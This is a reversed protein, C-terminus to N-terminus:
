SLLVTEYNELMANRTFIKNLSNNAVGVHDNQGTLVEEMKNSISEANPHCLEVDAYAAIEPIGGVSTAIVKVGSALGELLVIGFTERRSPIVTLASHQMLAATEQRTTIGYFRVRNQIKLTVAQALLNDKETGSGAIVLIYTKRLVEPLLAYAHVLLDFGKTYVLRGCAFIYQQPIPRSQQITFNASDIGNYVVAGKVHKGTDYLKGAMDMLYASCTTFTYSRRIRRKMVKLKIRQSFSLNRKLGNITNSSDFDFFQLIEDGHFSIIWKTRKFWQQLIGLFWIQQGPFHINVVDPRFKGLISILQVLRLPFVLIGYVVMLSDKISSVPRIPHFFRLRIVKIGDILESAPLTSPIKNTLVQVTHGNKQLGAALDSAIVQLGGPVPAYSASWILIRKRPQNTIM